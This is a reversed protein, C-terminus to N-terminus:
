GREQKSSSHNHHNLGSHYHDCGPYICCIPNPVHDSPIPPEFSPRDRISKRWSHLTISRRMMPRKRRSRPLLLLLPPPLPPVRTPPLPPVPRSSDDTGRDGGGCPSRAYLHRSVVVVVTTTCRCPPPQYAPLCAPLDTGNHIRDIIRLLLYQTM